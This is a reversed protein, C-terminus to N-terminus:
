LFSLIDDASPPPRSGSSLCLRPTFPYAADGNTTATQRPKVDQCCRFDYSSPCRSAVTHVLALKIARGWQSILGSAGHGLIGSLWRIGTHCYIAFGQFNCAFGGRTYQINYTLWPPVLVGYTHWSRHLLSYCVLNNYQYRETPYGVIIQELGASPVNCKKKLIYKRIANFM